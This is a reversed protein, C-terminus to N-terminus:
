SPKEGRWRALLAAADNLDGLPYLELMLGTSATRKGAAVELYREFGEIFEQRAEFCAGSIALIVTRFPRNSESLAQLLAQSRSPAVPMEREGDPWHATLSDGELCVVISDVGPPVGDKAEVLNQLAFVVVFIGITGFIIDLFPLLSLEPPRQAGGAARRTKSGSINNRWNM